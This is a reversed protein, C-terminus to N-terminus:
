RWCASLSHRMATTTEESQSNINKLNRIDGFTNRGALDVGIKHSVDRRVSPSFRDGRLIQEPFGSRQGAGTFVTESQGFHGLRQHDTSRKLAPSNGVKLGPALDIM